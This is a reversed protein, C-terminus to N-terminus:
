RAGLMTGVHCNWHYTAANPYALFITKSSQLSQLFQYPNKNLNDKSMLDKAPSVKLM